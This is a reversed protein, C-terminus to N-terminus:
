IWGVFAPLNIGSIDADSLGSGLPTSSAVGPAWSTLTTASGEINFGSLSFFYEEVEDVSSPSLIREASTLDFRATKASSHGYISCTPNRTTTRDNTDVTVKTDELFGYFLDYWSVKVFTDLSTPGAYESEGIGVGTLWGGNLEGTLQQEVTTKYTATGDYVYVCEADFSAVAVIVMPAIWETITGTSITARIHAHTLYAMINKGLPQIVYAPSVSQRNASLQSTGEYTQISNWYPGSYNAWYEVSKSHIRHTTVTDSWTECKTTTSSEGISVTVVYHPSVTHDKVYGDNLGLTLYPMTGLIYPDNSSMYNESMDRYRAEAVHSVSVRCLQLEEGLFYSYFTADGESFSMMNPTLKRSRGHFFDPCVICIQSRVVGWPRESELISHEATLSVVHNDDEQETIEIMYTSSSMYMSYDDGPVRFKVCNTSKVAKKGSSSWHWGYDCAFGLDYPVDTLLEVKNKADPLSVSFIFAELKIKAEQTLRSNSDAILKRIPEINKPALLPYVTLKTSSPQLLWHGGKTDKYVGTSSEMRIDSYVKPREVGGAIELDNKHVYSKLMLTKFYGDITFPMNTSKVSRDEGTGAYTYLYAGYLAQVYLRCRGTFLSAPVTNVIVKKKLVADESEEPDYNPLDKPSFSKAKSKDPLVRGVIKPRTSTAISCSGILQDSPPGDPYTLYGYWKTGEAAATPIYLATYDSVFKPMNMVGPKYRDAAHAGVALMDVVGSDMEILVSGGEIRIYEHGPEIRVKISAGGIEFSQSAYPL